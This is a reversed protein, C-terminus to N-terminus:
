FNAEEGMATRLSLETAVVPDTAELVQYDIPASCVPCSVDFLLKHEGNAEEM